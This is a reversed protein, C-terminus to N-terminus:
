QAVNSGCVWERERVRVCTPTWIYICMEWAGTSVINVNNQCVSLDSWCAKETERVWVPTYIYMGECVLIYVVKVDMGCPMQLVEESEEVCVYGEKKSVCMCVCLMQLLDDSEGVCVYMDLKRRCVRLSWLSNQAGWSERGCLRVCIGREEVCENSVSCKSCRTVRERVTTDRKRRCVYLGTSVIGVGNEFLMQLVEVSGCVRGCVCTCICIDRQWVHLGTSVIRTGKDCFMQLVAESGGEGVCVRM